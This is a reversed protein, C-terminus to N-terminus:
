KKPRKIAARLTDALSGFGESQAQDQREAYERAESKETAELVAKRSLRIRRGSADIELVMVEVDSGIPFTKKLDGDKEVGTEELPILGTSGPKLFVFVGYSEHRQVKGVLRIGPTIELQGAAKVAVPGEATEAAHATQARVSGEEVVAVGIRKRDLDISLIEIAVRAAPPVLAKWGDTKGTPPFTSLHALGEIGPALEVFAGFDAVRTVQGLLVQGVQYTEGVTSWPDAQLQKLGLSIRGKDEDVRLVKVTIEDDPQVVKTPDLVRSWGMESVHLLGQVGGGLDVFAGYDLVSVVRGPLVADPVVLRRVEEAQEREEEKLLARRSVVLDKGDRKYEIVRFSYVRGEHISPDETFRTDIQSIPCFARQGAIRVDYGGKIAKEVRGEVPLRSQFAEHLAELTAAQRALKHSLKLGGSTSVVIAEVTDGVQLQVAGDPDALEEIDIAAEGKGGVDVFAVDSGLAVIKGEVSQGVQFFTPQLSEELMRAFDEEEEDPPPVPLTMIMRRGARPSSAKAHRQFDKERRHFYCLVLSPVILIGLHQSQHHDSGRHRRRCMTKMDQVGLGARELAKDGAPVISKAMFAKKTRAQAYSLIQVTIRKDRALEAAM